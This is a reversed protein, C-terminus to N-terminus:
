FEGDSEEDSQEQATTGFSVPDVVSCAMFADGGLLWVSGALDPTVVHKVESKDAPLFVSLIPHFLHSFKADFLEELWNRKEAHGNTFSGSWGL